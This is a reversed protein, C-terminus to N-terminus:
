RHPFIRVGVDDGSFYVRFFLFLFSITIRMSHHFVYQTSGDISHCDNHISLGCQIFENQNRLPLPLCRCGKEHEFMSYFCNETTKIHLMHNTLTFAYLKKKIWNKSQNMRIKDNLSFNRNSSM